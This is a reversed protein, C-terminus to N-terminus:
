VDQQVLQLLSAIYDSQSAILELLWVTRVIAGPSVMATNETMVEFLRTIVPRFLKENWGGTEGGAEEQQLLSEQSETKVVNRAINRLVLVASLPIGAARDIRPNREDPTTLTKEWSVTMTKAPVIYSKKQRKAPLESGDTLGRKSSTTVHTKLHRTLQSLPMKTPSVYRKCDGWKCAVELAKDEFKGSEDPAQELHVALIHQWLKAGGPFFGGCKKTFPADGAGWQCRAYEEKTEFDLPLTRARIGEIIFRQAEGPGRIIQARANTFVHSVNRIFDAASLTNRTQGRFSAQYAQWIAIQTIHSESDEEFLSTLWHFCRQPEDTGSLKEQLDQPLPTVHESAGIKKEPELVYDEKVRKAGHALLRVLHPIAQEMDVSKILSEVNPVVATYQYLFDLCADMLEEDNLLLWNTINQLIAAPVDPLKNTAELNMSIRSLARLATLLTGRDASELQALLSQYLPDDSGLALWPTLQEAIDLAFHKVEVLLELNPLQLIICLLDKLFYVDAMYTANEHLMVMNRTTLIAETIALMRDSFEDPQLSDSVAKRKLRAIRALIDHTGNVADLISDDSNDGGSYDVQWEVDYFLSSIELGKEILSEALGLFSEFKFKDGREFSIKVLHHLAFAQEAPIGSRLAQM